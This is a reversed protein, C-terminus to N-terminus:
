ISSSSLFKGQYLPNQDWSALFIKASYVQFSFFFSFDFCSWFFIKKRAQDRMKKWWFIWLIVKKAQTDNTFSNFPILDLWQHSICPSFVTKRSFFVSQSFFNKKASTSQRLWDHRDIAHGNNSYDLTMQQQEKSSSSHERQLSSWYDYFFVFFLTGSAMTKRKKQDVWLMQPHSQCQNLLYFVIIKKNKNKLKKTLLLSVDPWIYYYFYSLKILIQVIFLALRSSDLGTWICFECSSISASCCCSSSSLFFFLLLLFLSVWIFDPFCLCLLQILIPEEISATIPPPSKIVEIGDAIWISKIPVLKCKVKNIM